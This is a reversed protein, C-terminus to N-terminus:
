GSPASDAVNPYTTPDEFNFERAQYRRLFTQLERLHGAHVLVDPDSLYPSLGECQQAFADLVGLDQPSSLIGAFGTQWAWDNESALRGALGQADRVALWVHEAELGRAVHDRLEAEIWNLAAVGASIIRRYESPLM